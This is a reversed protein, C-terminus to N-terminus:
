GNSEVSIILAQADLSQPTVGSDELVVMSLCDGPRRHLAQGANIIFVLPACCNFVQKAGAGKHFVAEPSVEQLPFDKM